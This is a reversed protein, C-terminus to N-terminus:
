YSTGKVNLSSNVNKVSNKIMTTIDSDSPYTFILVVYLVVILFVLIPFIIKWFLHASLKKQSRPTVTVPTECTVQRFGEM